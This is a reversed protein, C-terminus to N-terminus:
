FVDAIIGGCALDIIELKWYASVEVEESKRKRNYGSFASLFKQDGGEWYFTSALTDKNKSNSNDIYFLGVHDGTWLMDKTSGDQAVDKLYQPVIANQVEFYSAIKALTVAGNETYKISDRIENNSSVLENYVEDPILVTNPRYGCDKYVRTKLDLIDKKIRGTSLNNWKATPDVVHGSPYIAEFAAKNVGWFATHVEKEHSNIIKSLLSISTATREELIEGEESGQTIEQPILASLAHDVVTFHRLERGEREVTKVEEGPTRVVDVGAEARRRNRVFFSNTIKSSRVLPALVTGVGSEGFGREVVLNTLLTDYLLHDASGVKTAM